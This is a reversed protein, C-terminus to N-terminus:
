AKAGKKITKHLFDLIDVHKESDRITAELLLTFLGQYYGKSSKMLKKTEKIGEKENKIFDATLKLFADRDEGLDGPSSMAEPSRTWNLNGRLSAAMAHMIGHHKEEDSIILQLLFKITPDKTKQAIEQYRRIFDVEKGSHSEYEGLLREAESVEEALPKNVKPDGYIMYQEPV